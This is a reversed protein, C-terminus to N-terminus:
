DWPEFDAQFAELEDMVAKEDPSERLRRCDDEIRKRIEPNDTDWVWLTIPKMGQARKRARYARTREASTKLPKPQPKREPPM